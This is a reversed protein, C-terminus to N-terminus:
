RGHLEAKTTAERENALSWNAVATEVLHGLFYLPWLPWLAGARITILLAAGARVQSRTLDTLPYDRGALFKPRGDQYFTRTFQARRIM